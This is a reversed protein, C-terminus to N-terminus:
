VKAIPYSPCSAIGCIGADNTSDDRKIKIYGDEGWSEGWSNKVLWYDVGNDSGYGVILVGHDLNTGCKSSDLVGGGAPFTLQGQESPWAYSMRIM